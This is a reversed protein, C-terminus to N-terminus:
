GLHGHDVSGPHKPVDLLQPGWVVGMDYVGKLPNKVYAALLQASSVATFLQPCHVRLQQSKSIPVQVSGVRFQNSIQAAMITKALSMYDAPDATRM